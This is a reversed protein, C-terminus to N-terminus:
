LLCDTKCFLTVSAQLLGNKVAQNFALAIRHRGKHDAYLIRAQSGVVKLPFSFELCKM